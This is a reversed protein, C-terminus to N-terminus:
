LGKLHLAASAIGMSVSSARTHLYFMNKKQFLVDLVECYMAFFCKVAESANHTKGLELLHKRRATGAVVRTGSALGPALAANGPCKM